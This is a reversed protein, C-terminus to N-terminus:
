VTLIDELLAIRLPSDRSAREPKDLWGAAPIRLSDEAKDWLWAFNAIGDRALQDRPKAASGAAAAAEEPL